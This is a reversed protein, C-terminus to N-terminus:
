SNGEAIIMLARIGSHLSLQRIALAVAEFIPIQSKDGTETNIAQISSMIAPGSSTTAITTAQHGARIAIFEVKMDAFEAVLSSATEKERNLVESQNPGADIVLAINMPIESADMVSLVSGRREEAAIGLDQPDIKRDPSDARLVIIHQLDDRRSVDASVPGTFSILLGLLFLIPARIRQLPLMVEKRERWATIVTCKRAAM